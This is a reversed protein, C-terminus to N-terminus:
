LPLELQYEPTYTINDKGKRHKVVYVTNDNRKYTFDHEHPNYLTMSIIKDYM